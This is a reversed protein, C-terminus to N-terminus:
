FLPRKCEKITYVKQLYALRRDASSLAEDASVYTAPYSFPWLINRASLGKNEMAAQRIYQSDNIELQLEECSMDKDVTTIQPARPSPKGACASLALGMATIYVTSKLINKMSNNM